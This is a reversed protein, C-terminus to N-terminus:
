GWSVVQLDLRALVRKVIRTRCAVEDPLVVVTVPRLVPEKEFLMAAADAIHESGVQMMDVPGEAAALSVLAALPDGSRATQFCEELDQRQFQGM